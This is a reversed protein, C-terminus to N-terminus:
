DNAALFDLPITDVVELTAFDIVSIDESLMNAVYVYDLGSATTAAIPNVGVRVAQV